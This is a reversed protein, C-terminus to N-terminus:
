IEVDFVPPREEAKVGDIVEGDIVVNEGVTKSLKKLEGWKGTKTVKVYETMGASELWKVLKEDDQVYKPAPFKLKLKGSPLAYTEQTKTKKKPVTQFYDFLLTKLGSTKQELADQNKKIEQQYRLIQSNCVNIIRQAEAQEERIKNLAWEASEDTTIAFQEEEVVENIIDLLPNNM